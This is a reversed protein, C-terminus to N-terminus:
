VEKKQLSKKNSEYWIMSRQKDYCDRSCFNRKNKKLQNPTRYFIIGCEACNANGGPVGVHRTSAQKYVM